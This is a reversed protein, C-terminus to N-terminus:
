IKFVSDVQHLPLSVAILAGSLSGNKDYLCALEEGSQSIM